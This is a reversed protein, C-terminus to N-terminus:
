LLCWDPPRPFIPAGGFTPRNAALRSVIRRYSDTGKCKTLGWVSSLAFMDEWYPLKERSLIDHWWILAANEPSWREAPCKERRRELLNEVSFIHTATYVDRVLMSAAAAHAKYEERYRVPLYVANKAFVEELSLLRTLASGASSNVRQLAMRGQRHLKAMEKPKREKEEVGYLM